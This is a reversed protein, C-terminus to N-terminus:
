ADSVEGKFHPCTEDCYACPGPLDPSHPCTPPIVCLTPLSVLACASHVRGDGSDLGCVSCARMEADISLDDELDANARQLTERRVDLPLMALRSLVDAAPAGATADSAVPRSTGFDSRSALDEEGLQDRMDQEVDDATRAPDNIGVALRLLFAIERAELHPHRSILAALEDTTRRNM